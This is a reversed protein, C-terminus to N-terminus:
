ETKIFQVKRKFEYQKRKWGEIAYIRENANMDQIKEYELMLLFALSKLDQGENSDFWNVLNDYMGQM